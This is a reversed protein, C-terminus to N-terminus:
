HMYVYLPHTHTYATYKTSTIKALNVKVITETLMPYFYFNPLYYNDIVCATSLVSSFVIFM